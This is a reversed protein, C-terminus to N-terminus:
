AASRQQTPAAGLFVVRVAVVDTIWRKQQHDDVWSRTQLRGEIFVSRGKSLYRACHEAQEGWVTVRHWETREQRQGSADKSIHSTAVNLRCIPRQTSTHKLEPNAGLNGVLIVKNVNSM